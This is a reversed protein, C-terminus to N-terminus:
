EPTISLNNREEKILLLEHSAILIFFGLLWVGNYFVFFLNDIMFIVAFIFFTLFLPNKSIKYEKLSNIVLMILLIFYILFGIFGTCAFLELYTSHSFAGNPDFNLYNGPGVGFFPHELGVNFANQIILYRTEDELDNDSRQALLTDQYVGDITNIIVLIIIIGVAVFLLKTIPNSKRWYRILLLCILLPVQIILVQRSATYIAIIFSLPILFLFFLKFFRSIIVNKAVIGLVFITITFFFTYYAITNANLKDDSARDVETDFSTDILYHSAYFITAIFIVIYLGYLLSINKKETALNAFTVCILFTGLCQHLTRQADEFSYAFFSSFLVWLYLILIIRIYVNSFLSNKGVIFSLVFSLPVAVYLAIINLEDNLSCAVSFYLLIFTIIRLFSM